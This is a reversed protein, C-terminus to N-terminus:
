RSILELVAGSEYWSHEFDPYKVYAGSAKSPIAVSDVRREKDNWKGFGMVEGNASMSTNRVVSRIRLKNFDKRTM